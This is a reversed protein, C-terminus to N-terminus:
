RPSLNSISLCDRLLRIILSPTSPPCSFFHDKPQLKCPKDRSGEKRQVPIHASTEGYTCLLRSSSFVPICEKCTAFICCLLPRSHATNQYSYRPGRGQLAPPAQCVDAVIHFTCIPENVTISNVILVFNSNIYRDNINLYFLKKSLM